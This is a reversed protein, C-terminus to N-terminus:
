YASGIRTPDLFGKSETTANKVKSRIGTLTLEVERLQQLKAQREPGKLGAVEKTLKTKMAGLVKEAEGARGGVEVTTHLLTSPPTEGKKVADLTSKFEPATSHEPGPKGEVNTPTRPNLVYGGTALEATAGIKIEDLVRQFLGSRESENLISWVEQPDDTGLRDLARKADDNSPTGREQNILTQLLGKAWAQAKKKDGDNIVNRGFGLAKINEFADEAKHTDAVVQRVRKRYDSDEVPASGTGDADTTRRIGHVVMANAERESKAADANARIQEPDKGLMKTLFNLGAEAKRQNITEDFQRKNEKLSAHKLGLERKAMVNEFERQKAGAAREEASTLYELKKEQIKGLLEMGRAQAQTDKVGALKAQIDNSIQDLAMAHMADVAAAKDGFEERLDGLLSREHGVAQNLNDLNKNQAEINERVRTNILDLAANRGQHPRLLGGLAVSAFMAIRQGTDMDQFMQQPNIKTNRAQEVTARVKMRQAGVVKDREAVVQAMEAQRREAEGARRVAAERELAAADRDAQTSLKTAETVQNLVEQEQQERPTLAPGAPPQTPAAGPTAAPAQAPQTPTPQSALMATTGPYGALAHPTVEAPPAKLKAEHAERLKALVPDVGPKGFYLAGHQTFDRGDMPPTVGVDPPVLPQALVQAAPSTLDLPADDYLLEASV